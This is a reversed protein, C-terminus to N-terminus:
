GNAAGRELEEVVARLGMQMEFFDRDIAPGRRPEVPRSFFGSEAHNLRFRLDAVTVEEPSWQEYLGFCSCHCGNVEYMKGGERFLVFATGEYGEYDYVAYLIEVGDGPEEEFAEVVSERSDFEGWYTDANM